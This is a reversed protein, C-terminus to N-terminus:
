VSDFNSIRAFVTFQGATLNALTGGTATLVMDVTDAASTMVGSSIVTPTVPVYVGATFVDQANVWRTASSGDGISCTLASLPGTGAWTTDCRIIVRDILTGAPSTTTGSPEPFIAFATGSTKTLVDSYKLVLKHTCGTKAIEPISLNQWHLM